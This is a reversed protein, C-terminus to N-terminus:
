EKGKAGPAPRPVHVHYSMGDGWAAAYGKPCCVGLECETGAIRNGRGADLSALVGDVIATCADCLKTQLLLHELTDRLRETENRLGALEAAHPVAEARSALAKPSHGPEFGAADRLDTWLKVADVERDATWHAAYYLDRAAERLREIEKDKDACDQCYSM